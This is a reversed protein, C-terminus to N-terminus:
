RLMTKRWAEYGKPDNKAIIKAAELLANQMLDARELAARLMERWAKQTYLPEAGNEAAARRAAEITPKTM